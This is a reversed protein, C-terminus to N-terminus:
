ETFKMLDKTQMDDLIKKMKKQKHLAVWYYAVDRTGKTMLIIVKGPRTRATRGARQIVRIESPIPEYFIVTDTEAIDLGEEGISTAVLINYIGLKFENIIKVQEQQKLGKSNAIKNAQGIFAVPKADHLEQLESIIKNITDRYQTFIIMRHNAALESAVIKKLETIKPHEYGAALLEDVKKITNYVVPDSLLRGTARSDQGALRTAYEKFAYLCQTELLLLAHDLKLLEALISLGQWRLPSRSKSLQEQLVLIERKSLSSPLNPLIAQLKAIRSQRVTRLTTILQQLESPLQLEIVQKYMKQVYPKVDRADRDRIEIRQIGLRSAIEKIRSRQSGPSATLALILPNTAMELYKKAVYVYAYNRVARHAEDIVLLHYPRLDLVYRRLDNQITQPTAFIIDGHKYLEARKAPKTEGTVAVLEPGLKLCRDFTEKHQNVLPKTPALFLVKAPENRKLAADLREVAVLLAISTKGIGTPLVCLTNGTLATQVIARQYTRDEITGPNIWPHQVFM